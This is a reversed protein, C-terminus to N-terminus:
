QLPPPEISGSLAAIRLAVHERILRVTEAAAARDLVQFEPIDEYRDIVAFTGIQSLDPLEAPLVEREAKLLAL